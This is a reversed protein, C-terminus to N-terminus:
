MEFGGLEKAKAKKPVPEEQHVEAHECKRILGFVDIPDNGRPETIKGLPSITVKVGDELNLMYGTGNGAAYMGILGGSVQMEKTPDIKLLDQLEITGYWCPLSTYGCNDYITAVDEIPVVSAGPAIGMEDDAEIWKDFEDMDTPAEGATIAALPSANLLRFLSKLGDTKLHDGADQFGGNAEIDGFDRYQRNIDEDGSPAVYVLPIRVNKVASLIDSPDNEIVKETIAQRIETSLDDSDVDCGLEDSIACIKQVAEKVKRESFVMDSVVDEQSDVGLNGEFGMELLIDTITDSWSLEPAKGSKPSRYDTMAEAVKVSLMKLNDGEIRIDHWHYSDFKGALEDILDSLGDRWSDLVDVNEIQYENGDLEITTM